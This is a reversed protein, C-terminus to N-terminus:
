LGFPIFVGYCPKKTLSPEGLPEQEYIDNNEIMLPKLKELFVNYSCNKGCDSVNISLLNEKSNKYFLNIYKQGSCGDRLEILIASGTQPRDETFELIETSKLDKMINVISDLSVAYFMVKYKPQFDKKRSFKNMYDTIETFISGSASTVVSEPFPKKEIHVTLSDDSPKKEFDITKTTSITEYIDIFMIGKHLEFNLEEELSDLEQNDTIQLSVNRELEISSDKEIKEAHSPIQPQNTTEKNEKQYLGSLLVNASIIM